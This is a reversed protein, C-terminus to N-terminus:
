LLDHALLTMVIVIWAEASLGVIGILGWNIHDNAAARKDDV